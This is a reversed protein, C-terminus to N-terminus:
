ASPLSNRITDSLRKSQQPRKTFIACIQATRSVFIDHSWGLRSSAMCPYLAANEVNVQRVGLDRDLRKIFRKGFGIQSAIAKGDAQEIFAQGSADIRQGRFIHEYERHTM